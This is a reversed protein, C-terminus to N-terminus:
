DGTPACIACLNRGKEVLELGNSSEVFDITTERIEGETKQLGRCSRRLHYRMAGYTDAYYATQSESTTWNRLPEVM